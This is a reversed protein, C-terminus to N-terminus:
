SNVLSSTSGDPAQSVADPDIGEGFLAWHQEMSLDPQRIPDFLHQAYQDREDVLFEQMAPSEHVKDLAEETLTGSAILARKLVELEAKAVFLEGTLALVTGMLRSVAPDEFYQHRNSM